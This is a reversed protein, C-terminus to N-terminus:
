GYLRPLNGSFTFANSAPSGTKRIVTPSPAYVTTAPAHSQTVCLDPHIVSDQKQINQQPLPIAFTKPSRQDAKSSQNPSQWFEFLTAPPRPCHTEWARNSRLRSSWSASTINSGTPSQTPYSRLQPNSPGHSERRQERSKLMRPLQVAAVAKSKVIRMAQHEAINDLSDDEGGDEITM